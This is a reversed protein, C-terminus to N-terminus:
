TNIINSEENNSRYSVCFYKWLIRLYIFIFSIISVHWNKCFDFNQIGFSKKLKVTFLNSGFPTFINSLINALSYFDCNPRYNADISKITSSTGVLGECFAYFVALPWSIVRLDFTELKKINLMLFPAFVLEPSSFMKNKCKLKLVTLFSKSKWLRWKKVLM